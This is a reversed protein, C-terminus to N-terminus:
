KKGRLLNNGYIEFLFAGFLPVKYKVIIGYSEAMLVKSKAPQQTTLLATGRVSKISIIMIDSYRFIDIIKILKIVM